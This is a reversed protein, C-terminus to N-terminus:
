SHKACIVVASGVRERERERERVYAKEREWDRKRERKEKVKTIVYSDAIVLLLTCWNCLFCSIM